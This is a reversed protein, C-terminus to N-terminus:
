ITVDYINLKEKQPQFNIPFFHEWTDEMQVLSYIFFDLM